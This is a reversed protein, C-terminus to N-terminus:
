EQYFIYAFSTGAFLANKQEILPSDEYVAGSLLFHSAFAGFWWKSSQYKVGLANRYGSYGDKADYAARQETKYKDEVSYFYDHYGGGAYVPGTTLSLDIKSTPRYEFRLRPSTLYGQSDLGKFDTSFVARIPLRLAIDSNDDHYLAYTIKPGLEFTLDLDPMGERMKADESDSPLSGGLSLDMSLGDIEFLERKIGGKEIQFNEGRYRIYPFPSILTQQSKAGVYDPYGIAAMGLGLELKPKKAWLVAIMLLSLIIIKKM